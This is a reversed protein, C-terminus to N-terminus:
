PREGSAGVPQNLEVALGAAAVPEARAAARVARAALFKKLGAKFHKHMTVDLWGLPWTALLCLGLATLGTAVGPKVETLRMWVSITTLIITVHVLYLPYSYDGLRVLLRPARVWKELLVLGVLIVTCAAGFFVISKAKLFPTGEFAAYTALGLALVWAWTTPKRASRLFYYVLAGSAFNANWPSAWINLANPIPEPTPLFFSAGMLALYWAICMRPFLHHYGQRCYYACVLYFFLEYILTWEIGLKYDPSPGLPLLTLVLPLDGPGLPKLSFARLLFALAIIVFYTPYIRVLRNLLFNHERRDILMAMFYGSIAFFMCPIAGLFEPLGNFFGPDGYKTLFIKVHMLAVCASALGRMAQILTLTM